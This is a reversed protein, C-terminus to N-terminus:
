TYSEPILLGGTGIDGIEKGQKEQFDILGSKVIEVEIEVRDLYYHVQTILMNDRFIDALDSDFGYFSCTDGPQISEIDYGKDSDGNNDIITCIVKTISDKNEDIFKVGIKDAANSNDIGYDNSAEARRGYNAISEDDQYHKYVKDAGTEGNWVLFFNRVKELSQEVKVQNFHRGFFFKHTPITPKVGFKVKGSEDIYYFTGVPAMQKLSDMAERYTKQEFRYTATTATDPIQESDYSIKANPTEAIYRDLLARMMLGIDAADEDGYTITLGATPESYLTTYEANKLFDTGLRTYYGLLHVRISEKPGTIEREILSIYGRYIIRSRDGSTTDALTDRDCIRIEVDNGIDLDKEGYDFPEALQIICEGIGGNIEKMFGDFSANTWIKILSGDTPSYVNILIQKKIVSM